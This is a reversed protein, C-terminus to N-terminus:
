SAVRRSPVAMMWDDGPIHPFGRFNLVNDFKDRCTAMAKDCGAELRMRDGAVPAAGLPAWLEVRRGGPVPRDLKVREELGDAAGGLVIGRGRAFWDPAYEGAGEVVFVRADEVSLVVVEEAMGPGDMAVRCRADGLVADCRSHYVRGRPVNLAEALGRLEAQFGGAGHSVEGLTGRFLVDSVDPATWDVLRIVVEAGDWRGARLDAESVADDSLVGAAESNDVSLGTGTELARATLGSSARCAVGAVELDGDHDTFGLVLGDRRRLEWARAVTSAGGAMREALTM